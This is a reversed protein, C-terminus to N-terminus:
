ACTSLDPREARRNRRSWFIPQAGRVAHPPAARSKGVATEGYKRMRSVQVDDPLLSGRASNVRALVRNPLPSCM